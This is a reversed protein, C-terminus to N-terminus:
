NASYYTVTGDLIAQVYGSYFSVGSYWFGTWFYPDLSTRKTQEYVAGKESDLLSYQQSFNDRVMGGFSNKAGYDLEVTFSYNEDYECIFTAEYIVLSDPDKLMSRLEKITRSLYWCQTSFAEADIKKDELFKEDFKEDRWGADYLKQWTDIAEVFYASDFYEYGKEKLENAEEESLGKSCAATGALIVIVFLACLIKKM